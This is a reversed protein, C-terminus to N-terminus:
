NNRKKLNMLFKKIYIACQEPHSMHLWHGANPVTIIRYDRLFKNYSNQISKESVYGSSESRLILTPNPILLAPRPPAMTLQGANNYLLQPNCDWRGSSGNHRIIQHYIEPLANISGNINNVTHRLMFDCIVLLNSKKYRIPAIDLMVLPIEPRYSIEPLTLLLKGGYSAGIYLDPENTHEKLQEKVIQYVTPYDLREDPLMSHLRGHGPLTVVDANRPNLVRLLCDFSQKKTFLAPICTINGLM